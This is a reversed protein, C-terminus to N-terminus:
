KSKIEVLVHIEVLNGVRELFSPHTIAPVPIRKASLGTNGVLNDKLINTRLTPNEQGCILPLAAFM